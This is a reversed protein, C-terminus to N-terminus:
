RLSLIPKGSAQAAAKAKEFDTYWYLGSAHEDYQGGVRNLAAEIRKCSDDIPAGNQCKKIETAYVQMLAKLGETGENRLNAQALLAIGPDPSVAQRVWEEEGAWLSVTTGLVLAGITLTLFAKM